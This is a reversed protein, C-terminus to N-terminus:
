KDNKFYGIITCIVLIGELIYGFFSNIYIYYGLWMINAPISLLKYVKVKKQWLGITSLSVAIVSFLSYIGSYTFITFLIILSFLIILIIKNNSIDNKGDKLDLLFINDRLLTIFAMSAGTFHNVIVLAVTQFIHAAANFLLVKKRSKVFYSLGLFIFMIIIFVQSILYTSPLNM